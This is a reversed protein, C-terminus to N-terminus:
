VDKTKLFDSKYEISLGRIEFNNIRIYHDVTEYQSKLILRCGNNLTIYIASINTWQDSTFEERLKNMIDNWTLIM